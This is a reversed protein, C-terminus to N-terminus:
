MASRIRKMQGNHSFFTGIHRGQYEIDVPEAPFKEAVREFCQELTDKMVYHGERATLPTNENYLVPRTVRLEQISM